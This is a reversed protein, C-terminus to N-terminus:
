KKEDDRKKGKTRGEKGKRVPDTKPSEKVERSEKLAKRTREFYLELAVNIEFNKKSKGLL